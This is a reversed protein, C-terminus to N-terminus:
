GLENRSRIPTWVNWDGRLAHRMAVLPSFLLRAVLAVRLVATRAAGARRLELVVLGATAGVLAAATVDALWGSTALAIAVGAAAMTVLLPTALRILKHCVFQPWIPNRWPALIWPEWACMQLMGTLTRTKRNLEQAATFERPDAAHAAECYGVRRGARAVSLPVFLDDCILGDPPRHWLDRRMAYIAGTVAPLSHVRAELRRLLTEYRWFAGLVSTRRADHNTTLRGSVAGFRPDDLYEVLRAIADPAFRQATDTFVLLDGRARAVATGLAASKGAAGSARVVDIRAGHRDLAARYSETAYASERDVGVIVRLLDAPYTGALVDDVRAAVAAPTERTAIVVDVSPPAVVPARSAHRPARRAVLAMALPYLVWGCLLIGVAAGAVAWGLYAM